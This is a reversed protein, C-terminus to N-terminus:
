FVWELAVQYLPAKRDFEAENLVLFSNSSGEDVKIWTAEAKLALNAKLDWRTGLTVSQSSYLPLLDFISQYGFALADLQPDVGVPIENIPSGYASESNGFSIYSTFPYYNYGVSVFYSDIDPVALSKAHIQTVESRFFYDVNEYSASIQYFEIRGDPSLSKASETFGFQNLISSYDRFETLEIFADTTHYAARLTWSAFHIKTILGRLDNVNAGLEVGATYVTDDFNGWYGEIDIELTKGSWQYNALIGDFTSFFISSYVQQPLTIWPYAFGVDISDSYNFFPTRQKGLKIQTFRTPEYTLYLWEVGSKRENGTHGIFQGTISLNDLIQYDAQLGILSQQSLSLSKDYGLYTADNEDFYGLVVRAFGSFQLADETEASVSSASALLVIYSSILLL